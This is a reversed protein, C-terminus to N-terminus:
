MLCVDDFDFKENKSLSRWTEAKYVITFVVLIGVLDFCSSLGILNKESMLSM